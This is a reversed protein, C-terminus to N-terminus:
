YTSRHAVTVGNAELALVDSVSYPPSKHFAPHEGQKM